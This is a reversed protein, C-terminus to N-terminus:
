AQSSYDPRDRFAEGDPRARAAIVLSNIILKARIRGILVVADQSLWLKQARELRILRHKASTKLNVVQVVVSIGLM